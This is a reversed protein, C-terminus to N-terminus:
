GHLKSENDTDRKTAQEQVAKLLKRRPGLPLGLSVLDQDNLMFLADLDVRQEVFKDVYEGVGAAALFEYMASREAVPRGNVAINEEDSNQFEDWSMASSPQNRKVLSGASGISCSEDEITARSVDPVPITTANQRFAVSGFGPRDFMSGQDHRYIKNLGNCNQLNSCNNVVFNPQSITRHLEFVDSIRGRKGGNENEYSNVYIIQSDGNSTITRVSTSDEVEKILKYTSKNTKCNNHGDAAKLKRDLIKKVGGSSVLPKKVTGSGVIETFSKCSLDSSSKRLSLPMPRVTPIATESDAKHGGLYEKEVKRIQKKEKEREKRTREEYKKQHREADKQAKEKKSEVKKRNLMIQAAAAKDLFQLVQSKGHIAALQMATLFDLDLAWLNVDFGVLFTVCSLHGKSAALHLANQGLHYNCKEPDGGRGVLVRLAELHGKFAAWLTPTMGDEDKANCDRKTAEKLINVFGDQAAKHFRTNM